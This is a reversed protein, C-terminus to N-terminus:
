PAASVHVTRPLTSLVHAGTADLYVIEELRVGFRGSLYIGPEVSFVMGDELVTESTATIWPPEHVSLGLGHGTRHVFHDGYGADTIVGRTAADVDRALVGPRAAALGARVAEEVIAHVRAYEPDPPAGGVLAMRTIDSSYGNLKSGIDIVVADGPQLTYGDPAHHPLASHPGGGIIAFATGEAGARRMGAGAVEGLELETIGPRIAAFVAAVGADATAAVAQLRAIEDADKKGRLATLVMGAREYTADPLAAQLTLLHTAQMEEDIAVTHSNRADLADLAARLAADPGAADAYAHMPLDIHMRAQDANLAPVVFAVRVPTALLLCFREDAHPAYGGFAYRMNDTVALALLDVGASGLAAQIAAVRPMHTTERTESM